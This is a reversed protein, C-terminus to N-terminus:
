KVGAETAAEPDIQKLAEKAMERFNGVERFDAHDERMAKLLAPFASKAHGGFKGLACAASWRTSRDVDRLNETLVPIVIDPERGIQGLSFTAFGRVSDDRDKACNILAPIADQAKPGFTGLVRAASERVWANQNTLAQTLLPISEVGIGGLATAATYSTQKDNLLEVLKPTATKASSGLIPFAITALCRRKIAEGSSFNAPLADGHTAEKASLEHLLWPLANTGIQRIAEEARALLQSDGDNEPAPIGRQYEVLWESLWKGEYVPESPRVADAAFGASIVAVLAFLTIIRDTKM